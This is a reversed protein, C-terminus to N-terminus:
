WPKSEYVSRQNILEYQKSSLRSKAKSFSLRPDSRNKKGKDSGGSSNASVDMNSGGGRKKNKSESNEGSSDQSRKKGEQRGSLLHDQEQAYFIALLNEKAEIDYKLTLSKIFMVRAKDYEKLRILTNGMNFFVKSKFEEDASKVRGYLSLAKEYEGEKYLMNAKNYLIKYQVNGAELTIGFILLFPAIRKLLSSSLTTFGLLASIIALIIFLYFLERYQMVKKKSEFDHSQKSKILERVESVDPIVLYEGGTADSIDKIAHNARTIVINGDEDKLLKGDSQTITSGKQSALMIINVHLGQQKAYILEKEYDDEDGGDSFILLMPHKSKSMKRSLKLVPMIATSKTIIMDEDLGSFLHLLLEGDDSLPSLIIANSTFATIGFRNKHDSKILESLLEKAYSLRDPKVDDAHMSYSLDLAIIIDSGEQDLVSPQKQLAVRSLAVVTFIMALFIFFNKRNIVLANEIKLHLTYVILPLLLWFWEPALFTM